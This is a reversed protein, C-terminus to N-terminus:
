SAAAQVGIISGVAGTSEDALLAFTVPLLAAQGRVWQPTVDGSITARSFM